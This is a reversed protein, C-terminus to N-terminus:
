ASPSASRMKPSIRTSSSMDLFAAETSAIVTGDEDTLFIPCRMITHIENCILDASDKSILM